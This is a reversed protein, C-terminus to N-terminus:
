FYKYGLSKIQISPNLNFNVLDFPFEEKQSDVKSMWFKIVGPPKNSTKCHIYKEFSM